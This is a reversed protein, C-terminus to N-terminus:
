PNFGPAKWAIPRSSKLLQVLRAVDYVDAFPVGAHLPPLRPKAAGSHLPVFTSNSLLCQFWSKTEYTFHNFGPPKWSHSEVPNLTYLGGGSDSLASLRWETNGDRATFRATASAPAAAAGFPAAAASAAAAGSTNAAAAPNNRSQPIQAAAPRPAACAAGAAASASPVSAAQEQKGRATATRAAAAAAAATALDDADDDEDDDDIVM